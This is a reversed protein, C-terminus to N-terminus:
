PTLPPITFGQDPPELPVKVGESGLTFVVPKVESIRTRPDTPNVVPLQREITLMVDEGLVSNRGETVAFTRAGESTDPNGQEDAGALIKWRLEQQEDLYGGYLVLVAGYLGPNQANFEIAAEFSALGNEQATPPMFELPQVTQAVLWNTLHRIIDEERFETIQQGPGGGNLHDFPRLSTGVIRDSLARVFDGGPEERAHASWACVIGDSPLCGGTLPGLAILEDVPGLDVGQIKSDAITDEIRRLVEEFRTDDVFAKFDDYLDSLKLSRSGAILSMRSLPASAPSQNMRCLTPNGSALDAPSGRDCFADSYDLLDATGPSWTELVTESLVPAVPGFELELGVLLAIRLLQLAGHHPTGMSVMANIRRSPGAVSQYARESLGGMSFGFSDFSPFQGGSEPNSPDPAFGRLELADNEVERRIRNGATELGMRPNYTLLIPRYVGDTATALDQIIQGYRNGPAELDELTMLRTSVLMVRQDWGHLVFLPLSNDNWPKVSGLNFREPDLFVLDAVENIPLADVVDAAKAALGFVFERVERNVPLDAFGAMQVPEPRRLDATIPAGTGTLIASLGTFVRRNVRDVVNLHPIVTLLTWHGQDADFYAPLIGDENLGLSEAASYRASFLFPGAFVPAPAGPTAAEVIVSVGGGLAVLAPFNLDPDLDLTQGSDLDPREIRRLTVLADGSLAFPPLELQASGDPLEVQGGTLPIVASAEVVFRGDATLEFDTERVSPQALDLDADVVATRTQPPFGSAELWVEVLGAPLNALAYRGVEDTTASAEGVVSVLAGPVPAGTEADRVIGQLGGTTPRPELAFDLSAVGAQSVGISEVSVPFYRPHRIEFSRTGPPVGLLEYRGDRESATALTGGVLRIEALSVPAGTVADTVTGSLMAEVSPRLRFSLTDESRPVVQAVISQPEHDAATVTFDVTDFPPLASFSFRGDSAASVTALLEGTALSRADVTAGELPELTSHDLAQGSADEAVTSMGMSSSPMFDIRYTQEIPNGASLPQLDVIRFRDFFGSKRFRLTQEGSPMAEVVFRGDGDTREAIPFGLVSVDLGPEPLGSAADLVQGSLTLTTDVPFLTAVLPVVTAVDTDIDFIRPLFGDRTVTVTFPGVPIGRVNVAGTADSMASLTAGDAEVRVLAGALPDGTDADTVAGRVVSASAGGSAGSAVMGIDIETAGADEFPVDFSRSVFGDLTVSAHFPGAPIGDVTYEGDPGSEGTLITGDRDVTIAAGALGAGTDEDFVRGFLRSTAVGGGAPLAELAANLRWDVPTDFPVEFVEAVFGDAAFAVTFPVAPIAEVAYRGGADTTAEFTASGAEVTVAVGPLVLGSGADRVIGEVRSTTAGPGPGPLGESATTWPLLSLDVTATESAVVTADATAVLFGESRVAISATGPEVEARFRGSGDTTVVLTAGAVTIEVLAGALPAGSRADLVTGEVVALPPASSVLRFGLVEPEGGPRRYVVRMENEGPVLPVGAFTAVGPMLAAGAFGPLERGAAFWAEITLDALAELQVDARTGPLEAGEAPDVLALAATRREITVSEVTENGVADRLRIAIENVGPELTLGTAEFRHVFLGLLPNSRAADPVTGVRHTVGAAVIEVSSAEDAFGVLDFTPEPTLTGDPPLLALLRPAQFDGHVVVRATQGFPFAVAELLNEGPRIPVEATFTVGDPDAVAAVGDIQVFPTGRPALVTVPLLASGVAAGDAPSVIRIPEASAVRFITFSASTPGSGDDVVLTVVNAGLTLSTTVADEALGAPFSRGDPSGNVSILTVPAAFNLDLGVSSAIVADGDRPGVLAVVPASPDSTVEFFAGGDIGASDVAEISIEHFGSGLVVDPITFRGGAVFAEGASIELHNEDLVRYRLAGFLPALDESDESYRDAATGSITVVNGAVVSGSTPSTVHIQPGQQEVLLRITDSAGDHRAELEVFGQQAWAPPGAVILFAALAALLTVGV